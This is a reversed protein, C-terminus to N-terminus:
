LKARLTRLSAGLSTIVLLVFLEGSLRVCSHTRTRDGQLNRYQVFVSLAMNRRRLPHFNSEHGKVIPRYCM